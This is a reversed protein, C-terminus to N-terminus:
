KCSDVRRLNVCNELELERLFKHPLITNRASNRATYFADYGRM